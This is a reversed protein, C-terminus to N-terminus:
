SRDGEPGGTGEQADSEVDRQYFMSLSKIIDVATSCYTFPMLLFHILLFLTNLFLIQAIRMTLM